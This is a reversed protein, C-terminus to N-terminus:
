HSSRPIFDRAIFVSKKSDGDNMLSMEGVISGSFKRIHFFRANRFSFVTVGNGDSDRATGSLSNALNPIVDFQVSVDKLCFLPAPNDVGFPEYHSIAAFNEPNVDKPTICLAVPTVRPPLDPANAILNTRLAPLCEIDGESIKLGLAVKHGGFFAPLDNVSRAMLDYIDTDNGTRGSFSFVGRQPLFGGLFVPIGLQEAIQGAAPGVVGAHWKKHTAILVPDGKRYHSLAERQVEEQISRRRKNLVVLKQVVSEARSPDTELLLGLIIEASHLRGAANLVPVIKFAIDSTSGGDKVRSFDFLARLGSGYHKRSDPSLLTKAYYRAAPSLMSASDAIASLGALVESHLVLSSLAPHSERCFYVMLAALIAASYGGEMAGDTLCLHPNAELVGEGEPGRKHHDIVTVSIGKSKAFESLGRMETAGCDVAVIYEYPEQEYAETLRNYNIGYNDVFRSPIFTRVQWGLLTLARGMIAASTAGDVDYDASILVRGPTKSFLEKGVCKALDCVPDDLLSPHFFERPNSLAAPPALRQLFEESTQPPSSEPILWRFLIGQSVIQM